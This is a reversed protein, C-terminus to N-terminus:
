EAPQKGDGLSDKYTDFAADAMSQYADQSHECMMEQKQEEALDERDDTALCHDCSALHSFYIDKAHSM